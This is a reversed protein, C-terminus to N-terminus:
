GTLARDSRGVSIKRPKAQERVPIRVTLVGQDYGAEIGDSDLSEGLIFRRTFSGTKREQMVMQISEDREWKREATITLTDNEVTMDISDNDIGPLDLHIVFADGQRYGDAAMFGDSNAPRTALRDFEAFPDFRLLM